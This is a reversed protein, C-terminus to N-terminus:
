NENRLIIKDSNVSMIVVICTSDSGEVLTVLDTDFDLREQCNIWLEDANWIEKKFKELYNRKEIQSKIQQYTDLHFILNNLGLLTIKNQLLIIENLFFSLYKLLNDDFKIRPVVYKHNDYNIDVLKIHYNYLNM